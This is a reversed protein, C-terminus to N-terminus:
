YLLNIKSSFLNRISNNRFIFTFNGIFQIEEPNDYEHAWLSYEFLTFGATNWLKKHSIEPPIATMIRNVLLRQTGPKLLVKKEEESYQNPDFKYGNQSRYIISPGELDEDKIYDDFSFRRIKTETEVNLQRKIHFPLIPINKLTWLTNRILRLPYSEKSSLLSLYLNYRDTSISDIDIGNLGNYNYLPTLIGNEESENIHKIKETRLDIFNFYKVETGDLITLNSFRSHNLNELMMVEKDPSPSPPTFDVNKILSGGQLSIIIYSFNSFKTKKHHIVPVEDPDEEIKMLSEGFFPRLMIYTYREKEEKISVDMVKLGHKINLLFAYDFQENFIGTGLRNKTFKELNDFSHFQRAIKRLSFINKFSKNEETWTDNTTIYLIKLDLIEAETIHDMRISETWANEYSKITPYIMIFRYKDFYYNVWNVGIRKKEEFSNMFFLKSWNSRLKRQILYDGKLSFSKKFKNEKLKIDGREIEGKSISKMQRMFNKYIHLSFIHTTQDADSPIDWYPLESREEINISVSSTLICLYGEDSISVYQIDGEMEFNFIFKSKIIDFIMVGGIYFQNMSLSDTPQGVEKKIIRHTYLIYSGFVAEIRPRFRNFFKSGTSLSTFGIEEKNFYNSESLVNVYEFGLSSNRFNRVLYEVMLKSFPAISEPRRLNEIFEEYELKLNELTTYRIGNISLLKKLIVTWLINNGEIDRRALQDLSNITGALKLMDTTELITIILVKIQVPLSKFLDLNLVKKKEEKLVENEEKDHIKQVKNFAKDM